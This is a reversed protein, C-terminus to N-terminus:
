SAARAMVETWQKYSIKGDSDKNAERMLKDLKAVDVTPSLVRASPSEDLSARPSATKPSQEGARAAEARLIYDWTSPSGPEVTDFRSAGRPM